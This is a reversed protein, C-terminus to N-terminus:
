SRVLSIESYYEGGEFSRDKSGYDIKAEKGPTESSDTDEQKRKGKNREIKPYPNELLLNIVTAAVQDGYSAQHEAILTRAHEPKVDPFVDLVQSLHRDLPDIFEEEIIENLTIGGVPVPFPQTELRNLENILDNLTNEQTENPLSDTREEKDNKLDTALKKTSAGGLNVNLLVNDVSDRVELSDFDIRQRKLPPAMLQDDDSDSVEIVKTTSLIVRPRGTRRHKPRRSTSPGASPQRSLLPPQQM